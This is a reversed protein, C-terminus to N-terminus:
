LSYVDRRFYMVRHRINDDIDPVESNSTCVFYNEKMVEAVILGIETTTKYDSLAKTFIHIQVGISNALPHNDAFEKDAQSDDLFIVCPFKTISNPYADLVVPAVATIRADNLITNYLLKANIM